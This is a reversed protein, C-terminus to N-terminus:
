EEAPSNFSNGTLASLDSWYEPYTKKVCLPERIVISNENQIGFAVLSMCMAMRHDDYTDFEAPSLTEPPVITISDDTTFVQAGTKRLETAMAAIRDTEKVKWSHIGRIRSKGNAFLCLAAVTMAADPIASLDKDIARLPFTKERCEVFGKGYSVDAGMEQLVEAFHIDGQLSNKDIGEVRVPGKAIAAAALAYSASSADGEIDYDEPSHYGTNPVFFRQFHDNEVRVGFQEMMRITMTVYPKSILEGEVEISLPKQMCPAALLIATLYQSSVNGKIRLPGGSLGSAHVNIPPFGEKEAYDIKAGIQQLANVLDRIPREKMREVGTLSFDGTGLSIAATLFRISTGSNGVFINAGTSPFTGSQGSVTVTDDGIDGLVNVGLHERLARVMYITDDSWLLHHLRTKGRSLAALILARNTISKSGPLRLIGQIQKLAPIKLFTSNPHPANM